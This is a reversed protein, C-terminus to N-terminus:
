TDQLQKDFKGQAVPPLPFVLAAAVVRREHFKVMQHRYIADLMELCPLERIARLFANVIDALNSTCHGFRRGTIKHTEWQDLPIELIYDAAASKIERLEAIMADFTKQSEAYACAVFKRMHKFAQRAAGPAIFVSHFRRENTGNIDQTEIKVATIPDAEQLLHIYLQVKQFQLRQDETSEQLIKEKIKHATSYTIDVGLQM